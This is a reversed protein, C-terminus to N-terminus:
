KRLLEEPLMSPNVSPAINNGPQPWLRSWSPKECECDLLFVDNHFLAVEKTSKGHSSASSSPKQVEIDLVGGFVVRRGPSGSSVACQSLGSRRGPGQGQVELHEWRVLLGSSTSTEPQARWLDELTELVDGGKKKLRTGGFVYTAGGAVWVLGGARASPKQTKNSGRKGGGSSSAVTTPLWSSTPLHLVHLDDHYSARRKKDESFGGFLVANGDKSSADVSM